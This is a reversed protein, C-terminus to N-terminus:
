LYDEIDYFWQDWDTGFPNGLVIIAPLIHVANALMRARFEAYFETYIVNQNPFPVQELGAEMINIRIFNLALYSNLVALANEEAQGMALLAARMAQFGSRLSEPFREIAEEYSVAPRLREFPEDAMAAPAANVALALAFVAAAITTKGLM